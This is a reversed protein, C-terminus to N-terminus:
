NGRIIMVKKVKTETGDESAIFIMYVGSAVKYKGFATTNWLVTGGESTTEFVLNGEIDTIKVNVNDMLGSINVDGDFNPRVPNPFVYVKSLDGAAATSTGKYSVMGGETAFFVEGTVPDIEIDNINNSPLPSNLKTFHFLTKQGDPSVLFAGAGATGIWKNNAGDVVIDTIVQEFMLEQALGDEMIIIANATLEDETMFREISSIVRLGRTTGIWLRNNNDIALAKVDDSPMNDEEGRVVIFKNSLNENFAVLGKGGTGMWKTTNRDVIVKVYNAIGTAEDVSYSTWQNSGPNLRRITNMALSNLVWLNGNKDFASDFVRVWTNSDSELPSNSGETYRIVAEDNEVKLLGSEASNFFVQNENNPNATISAISQTDLLDEYPISTWGSQTLKSVGYRTRTPTYTGDYGGFAAWLNNATKELAFINSRLPGNPTINTVASLNTLPMTFVGKEKTGIFIEGGVITACTFTVNEGPILNVQYVRVLAENYVNIRTACTALMYGAADRLDVVASPLHDFPWPITGEPKLLDGSPHGAFYYGAYSHIATWGGGFIETWQSYDNLNPNPFTARRIGFGGCGAYIYGDLITTQNVPIEAGLPGLFYTDGFELTALNFVAIGFDCAIYAKGEYEYIHNIKKKAAPITTEQIIDIKNLVSFDSNVVLLLGNANGVLTKSYTPSHHIATITEAKLGDVSTITKIENTGVNKTFMASESAAFVRNNSQTIDQINNYSFYSGWTQNGQGFSLVHLLLFVIPFLRKM